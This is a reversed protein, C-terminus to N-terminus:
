PPGIIYNNIIDNTDCSSKQCVEEMKKKEFDSLQGIGLNKEMGNKGLLIPNAFYSAKTIDSKVFTCEVVDSKGNM